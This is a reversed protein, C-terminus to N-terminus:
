NEKVIIIEPWAEDDNKTNTRVRKFPPDSQVEKVIMVDPEWECMPPIAGSRTQDHDEDDAGAENSEIIGWEPYTKDLDAEKFSRKPSQNTSGLAQVWNSTYQNKTYLDGCEINRKKM